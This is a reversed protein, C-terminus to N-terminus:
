AFRHFSFFISLYVQQIRSASALCGKTTIEKYNDSLQWPALTALLKLVHINSAPLKWSVPYKLQELFYKLEEMSGCAWLGTNQYLHYECPKQSLISDEKGLLVLCLQNMQNVKWDEVPFDKWNFLDGLSYSINELAQFTSQFDQSLGLSLFYM